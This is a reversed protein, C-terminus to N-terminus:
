EDVDDLDINPVPIGRLKMENIPDKMTAMVSTQHVESKDTLGLERAIINANFLGATAGELKQTRMIDEIIAIIGIFEKRKRYLTWTEQSIRFFVCMGSITYPRAKPTESYVIEGSVVHPKSEYLPNEDVSKFYELAANKLHKPSKFVRKRGPKKTALKWFSNGRPAACM